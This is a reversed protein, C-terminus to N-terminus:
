FGFRSELDLAYDRGGYTQQLRLRITLLGSACKNGAGECTLVISSAKEGETVLSSTLALSQGSVSEMEESGAKKGMYLQGKGQNDKAIWISEQQPAGAVALAPILEVGSGSGLQSLEAPGFAYLKTMIATMALDGEDRLSNQIKVREYSSMGFTITAYIVGLVVSLLSLAAILEILTFGGDERRLRDVFRKM